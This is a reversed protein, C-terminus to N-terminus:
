GNLSNEIFSLFLDVKRSSSRKIPTIAHLNKPKQQYKHILPLLENQRIYEKTMYSFVNAICLGKKSANLISEYSNSVFTSSLKMQSGNRFTLTDHLRDSFYLAVKHQMLDRPIEPAGYKKIYDPSAM